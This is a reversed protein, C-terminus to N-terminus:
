FLYIFLYIKNYKICVSRKLWMGLTKLKEKWFVPTWSDDWLDPGPVPINCLKAWLLYTWYAIPHWLYYTAFNYFLEPLNVLWHIEKAYVSHKLIEELHWCYWLSICFNATILPIATQVLEESYPVVSLYAVVTLWLTLNNAHHVDM